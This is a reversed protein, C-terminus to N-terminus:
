SLRRVAMENREDRAGDAWLRHEPTGPPFPNLALEQKERYALRGVRWVARERQAAAIANALDDVNKQMAVADCM